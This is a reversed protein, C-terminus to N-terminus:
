IEMRISLGPLASGAPKKIIIVIQFQVYILQCGSFRCIDASALREIFRARFLGVFNDRVPREIHHAREDPLIYSGTLAFELGALAAWDLRDILITILVNLSSHLLFSVLTRLFLTYIKFIYFM